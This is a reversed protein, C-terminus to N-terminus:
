FDVYLSAIFRRAGEPQLVDPAVVSWGQEDFVNEVMARFGFNAKAVTFRHRVGLDVQLYGPLTLQRGGLHEFTATSAARKGNYKLGGLLVLGGLLDTRYNANAQVFLDPVGAPRKGVLGQERAQGTVDADMFVVGALLDFREGLKASLSGELGRHRRQGSQVFARSADFAFYPKTIEFASLVLSNSGFKWRIGGEYQTTKTAPLQENRNLANEPALGSDELGRQTGAYLSVQDTLEVLLSANYLWPNAREFDRDGTAGSRFSARYRAKQLGINLKGVGDIRGLYGLLISSQRVRGANSATFEFDPEPEPDLDPYRVQGFDFFDSGGTETLRNRARYGAMIRHRVRGKDFSYVLLGEGSTSRVKHGPDAILSHNALGTEDLVNFFESFHSKQDGVARFVGGRIYLGDAVRGRVVTGYTSGDKEGEAWDQGLFRRNPPVEPVFGNRVITLPRVGDVPYGGFNAFPAIEVDGIKFRPQLVLAWAKLVSGDHGYTTSRGAGGTFAIRDDVIPLRLDYQEVDGGYYYRVLGVTNGFSEPFDIMDHDVVGTPAVFPFEVASFGVRITTSRKLESSLISVQDIYIGDIRANGADLPKFGRTNYETYIGSSEFGVKTGFADDADAVADDSAHQALAPTGAAFALCLTALLPILHLRM